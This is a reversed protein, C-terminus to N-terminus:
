VREMVLFIHTFKEMIEDELYMSFLSSESRERRAKEELAKVVEQPLIIDVLKVTFINNKM